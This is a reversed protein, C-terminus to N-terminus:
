HFDHIVTTTQNNFKKLQGNLFLLRAILQPNGVFTKQKAVHLLTEGIFFINTLPQNM